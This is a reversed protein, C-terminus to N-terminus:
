PEVELRKEQKLAEMFYIVKENYKTKTTGRKWARKAASEGYNYVMLVQNIDTYNKQINYIMYTGALINDYEDLFNLKGLDKQLWNHNVKHIQMLGYCKQYVTDAKFNSEQKIIALILEVEVDYIECVEIVCNLVNLPVINEYPYTPYEIAIQERQVSEYQTQHADVNLSTSQSGVLLAILAMSISLLSKVM